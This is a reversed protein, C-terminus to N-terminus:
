MSWAVGCPSSCTPSFRAQASMERVANPRDAVSLGDTSFRLSLASNQASIM